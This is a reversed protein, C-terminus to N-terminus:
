RALSQEWNITINLDPNTDEDNAEIILEKIDVYDNNGCNPPTDPWLNTFNEFMCFNIGNLSNIRPPEDNVDILKIHIKADGSKYGSQGNSDKVLITITEENSQDFNFPNNNEDVFIEGTKEDITM